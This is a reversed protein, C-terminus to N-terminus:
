FATLLSKKIVTKLCRVQIVISILTFVLACIIFVTTKHNPESARPRCISADVSFAVDKLPNALAMFGRGMESMTSNGQIEPVTAESPNYGTRDSAM